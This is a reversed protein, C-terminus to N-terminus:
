KENNFEALIATSYRFVIVRNHKILSSSGESTVRLGQIHWRQIGMRM